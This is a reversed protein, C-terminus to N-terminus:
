FFMNMNQTREARKPEIRIKKDKKKKKKTKRTSKKYDFMYFSLDIITLCFIIKNFM